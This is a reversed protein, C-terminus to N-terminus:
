SFCNWNESSSRKRGGPTLLGQAYRNPGWEMLLHPLPLSHVEQTVPIGSM